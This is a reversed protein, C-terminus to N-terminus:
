GKGSGVVGVILIKSVMILITSVLHPSYSYFSVYRLQHFYQCSQFFVTFAETDLSYDSKFEIAELHPSRRFITKMLQNTNQIFTSTDSSIKERSYNRNRVNDNEQNALPVPPDAEGGLRQLQDRYVKWEDM